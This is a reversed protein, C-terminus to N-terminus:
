KNGRFYDFLMALIVIPSESGQVGIKDPSSDVIFSYHPPKDSDRYVLMCGADFCAVVLYGQTGYRMYYPQGTADALEQVMDYYKGGEARDPHMAQDSASNNNPPGIVKHPKM